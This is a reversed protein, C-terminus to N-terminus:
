DDSRGRRRRGRDQDGAYLVAGVAPILLFWVWWKTAFFLGIAVFPTVGMVADRHQGLWSRTPVLAAGADTADGGAPRAVAAAAPPQRPDGYGGPLDAFLVQLDGRTVARYAATTRREHEAPDLRGERWHEGLATIAAQRDADGVRQGSDGSM